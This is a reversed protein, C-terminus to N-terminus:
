HIIETEELMMLNDNSSDLIRQTSNITNKNTHLTSKVKARYKSYKRNTDSENLDDYLNDQM